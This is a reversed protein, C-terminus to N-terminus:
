LRAQSLVHHKGEVQVTAAQPGSEGSEEEFRVEAGIELRDFDENMVSNRHFYIDRGDPTEIRGYDEEPFLASIRGSPATEHVKVDGRRRRVYDELKRCAADFAEKMAVYVDERARNKEPLRNIVLEGDRLTMDIKVNYLIGKHRRKHPAEVVVRCSIIDNNFRELKKARERIKAEVAESPDVNRFTIKLPIEMPMVEM